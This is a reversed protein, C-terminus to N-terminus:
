GGLGVRIPSWALDKEAQTSGALTPTTDRRIEYVLQMGRRNKGLTVPKTHEVLYARGIDIVVYNGNMDPVKILVSVETQGTFGAELSPDYRVSMGLRAASGNERGGTDLYGGVMSAFATDPIEEPNSMIDLTLKELSWRTATAFDISSGLYIEPQWVVPPGMDDAAPTSTQFSPTLTTHDQWDVCVGDVTWIPVKGPDPIEIKLNGFAGLARAEEGGNTVNKQEITLTKNRVEAMAFTYLGRVEAGSAPASPMAYQVTFHTADVVAKVKNIVVTGGSTLEIAVLEGPRRDSTSDVVISTFTSSAGVTCGPAAYEAGFLHKLLIRHSLATASGGATLRAATKISKWQFKLPGWKSGKKLGKVRVPNDFRSQSEDPNELREEAFGTALFSKKVANIRTLTGDGPHTGCVSEVGLYTVTEFDISDHQTM